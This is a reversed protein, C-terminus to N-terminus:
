QFRRGTIQEIAKQKLEKATPPPKPPPPIIIKPPKTFEPKHLPESIQASKYAPTEAKVLERCVSVDEPKPPNDAPKLLNAVVIFSAVVVLTAACFILAAREVALLLSLVRWPLNDPTAQGNTYIFLAVAHLGLWCAGVGLLTEKFKSHM